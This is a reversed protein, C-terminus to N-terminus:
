SAAERRVLRIPPKGLAQLVDARAGFRDVLGDRLVLIQDCVEVLAPRHTVMIVSIGQSRLDAILTCLAAEGAKDLFASPEDLVLLRKNGYLARAL